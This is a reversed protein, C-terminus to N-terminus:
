HSGQVTLSVTVTAEGVSNIAQCIYQGMDDHTVNTIRLKNDPLM